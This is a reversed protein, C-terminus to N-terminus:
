QGQSASSVALAQALRQRRTANGTAQAYHRSLPSVDQATLLRALQRSTAEPMLLRDKAGGLAQAGGAFWDLPNTSAMRRLGQVIRSPDVKADAQEATVEGTRSGGKIASYADFMTKEGELGTIYRRFLDDDGFALRIKQELAPVDMLRKTADARVPLDGVKQKLAQAAGVRFNHLQEPTMDRLSAALEQPNSFEARQMFNAGSELAEQNKFKDQALGRAKAYDGGDVKFSNPGARGTIDAADLERTLDRRLDGLIRAEDRSGAQMTRMEADGLARKVYDLTRLKLGTGVGGPVYDAKGLDAAEKLAATAEPDVKALLTRDNQMMRAADKLASRGAPTELIRDIASSDVSQNAKYASDYLDAALNRAALGEKTATFDEPVLATIKDIIRNTQGGQLVKNADRTGEQRATLFDGIVAKGEGPVTYAARALSRANPGVDMLAAEPGIENMRAVADAPTLNDRSLAEALKRAAVDEQRFPLRGAIQNFIGRGTAAVGEVLPVALGGTAGGIAAGTAGGIARDGFDGEAAGTGYLGGIGAGGLATRGARNALSAGGRMLPSFVRTIPSGVAGGIEGAVSAIPHDESFAKQRDRAEKLAADYEGGFNAPQGKIMNGLGGGVSGGLAHFEDGFATLGNLISDQLGTSFDAVSRLASKSSNKPNDKGLYADPDFSTKGQSLYADPDFPM